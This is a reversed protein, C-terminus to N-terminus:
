LDKTCFNMARLICPQARKKVCALLKAFDPKMYFLLSYEQCQLKPAANKVDERWSQKLAQCKVSVFQTPARHGRGKEQQKWLWPICESVAM